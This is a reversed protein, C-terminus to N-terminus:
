YEVKTIRPDGQLAGAVRQVYSDPILTIAFYGPWSGELPVKSGLGVPDKLIPPIANKALIEVIIGYQSEASLTSRFTIGVRTYGSAGSSDPIQANARKGLLFYLALGATGIILMTKTNM